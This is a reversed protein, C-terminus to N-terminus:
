QKINLTAKISAIDQKMESLIDALKDLKEGEKDIDDEIDKMKSELVTVRTKLNYIATVYTGISALFASALIPWLRDIFEM